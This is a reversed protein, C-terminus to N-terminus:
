ADSARCDARIHSRGVDDVARSRERNHRAQLTRRDDNALSVVAASLALSMPPFLRRADDLRASEISREDNKRGDTFSDECRTSSIRARRCMFPIWASNPSHATESKPWSRPTLPMCGAIAVTPPTSGPSKRRNGRRPVRGTGHQADRVRAPRGGRDPDRRTQTARSQAGARLRSGSLRQDSVRGVPTQDHPESTRHGADSEHRTGIPECYLLERIVRLM